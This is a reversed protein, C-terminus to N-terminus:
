NARALSVELIEGTILVQRSQEDFEGMLKKIRVLRQPLDYVIVKSSREDLIVQGVGPTILDNLFNKIDAFRAYNVDFVVTDLPQDLEKIAAAMVAM